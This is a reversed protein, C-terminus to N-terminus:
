EEEVDAEAEMKYEYRVDGDLVHYVDDHHIIPKFTEESIKARARSRAM